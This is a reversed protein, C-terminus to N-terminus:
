FLEQIEQPDKTANYKGGMFGYPISIEDSIVIRKNNSEQTFTRHLKELTLDHSSSKISYFEKSFSSKSFDETTVLGMKFGKTKLKTYNSDYIIEYMKPAKAIFVRIIDDPNKENTEIKFKGPIMKNKNPDLNLSKALNPVASLDIHEQLEKIFTEKPFNLYYILSDTDTYMVQISPFAAKAIKYHFNFMIYKSIELIAFGLFIPKSLLIKKKRMRIAVLQDPIIVDAKAFFPSAIRKMIKKEDSLLKVNVKRRDNEITKGFVANVMLKWVTKEMETKSSKRLEICKTIYDKLIAKSTFKIGRHIKTVKMGLEVYLILLPGFIVYNKKDELTQCLKIYDGVDYHSPALPYDHHHKHLSLPYELDVELITNHLLSLEGKSFTKFKSFNRFITEICRLELGKIWRFDRWPLESMMATGYLNNADLYLIAEKSPDQIEKKTITGTGCMGGRIGLEIFQFMDIDNILHPEDHRLHLMRLLCAWACSPTSIFHAPDIKFESFVKKRFFNIADALILVDMKNYIELYELVNKCQLQEFTTITDNYEEQTIQSVKLDSKFHEISPLHEEYLKDFSDLWQYPFRLKRNLLHSYNAYYKFTLDFAKSSNLIEGLKEISCSLINFTDIFRLNGIDFSLFKETSKAIINEIQFDPDQFYEKLM